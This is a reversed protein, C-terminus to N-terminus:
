ANSQTRLIISRLCYGWLCVSFIETITTTIFPDCWQKTMVNICTFSQYVQFIQGYASIGVVLVESVIARRWAQITM